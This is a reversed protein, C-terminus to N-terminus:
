ALFRNLHRIFKLPETYILTHGSKKFRIYKSNPIRAHMYASGEPPYMDNQLGAMITVPIHINELKHLLNYNENELYARVVSLWAQYSGEPIMQKQVFRQNVLARVREKVMPYPIAAAFFDGLVDIFQQKLPTPLQYFNQVHQYQQNEVLLREIRSMWQQHDKGGLGFQHEFYDRVYPSQDICLFKSAKTKQEHTFYYLTTYAGMSIGVFPLQEIGFYDLTDELDQYYNKFVDAQNFPTKGSLGFGRFDPLIFQFRHALPLVLPLWHNSEMGFGHLMLVPQGRGITRVHLSQGDRLQIHLSQPMM